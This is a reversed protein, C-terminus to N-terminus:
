IYYFYDNDNDREISKLQYEEGTYEYDIKETEEKSM